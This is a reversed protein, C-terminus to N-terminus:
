GAYPVTGRETRQHVSHEPVWRRGWTVMRGDDLKWVARFSCLDRVSALDLAAWCPVSRLAQLDFGDGCAQWKELDVWA